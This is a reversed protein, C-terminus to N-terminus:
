KRQFVSYGYIGFSGMYIPSNELGQRSNHQTEDGNMWRGPVWHGDQYMTEVTSGLVVTGKAPDTPKFTVSMPGGVFVFAGPGTNIVLRYGSKDIGMEKALNAAKLVMKGLVAANEPGAQNLSEIHQNSIVLIHVPAKPHADYFATIEDDHYLLKTEIQGSVIRCFICGSTAINIM